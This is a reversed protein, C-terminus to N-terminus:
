GSYFQSPGDLVEWEAEQLVERCDNVTMGRIGETEKETDRPNSGSEAWLLNAGAACGIVNPEHTCNGPVSFPLALRVVALIHAMRAESVIGHKALETEPIPIRRASGSYVPEADRTIITKEVLEKTTHENGVPELCTGLLLGAEKANQFTKLRAEVQFNTVRDEGLRVAHYIGSFGADKLDRAQEKTLDGFNAILVTEPELNRSLEQGMEVYKKFPYQATAMVFIANAKSKEFNQAMGVAEESSVEESEQFIGNVAAFSCFKCNGPCSAINLGLQGHVEAKNDSAQSSKRRGAAIIRASEDTFLPVEFLEAIEESKLGEDNLAKELITEIM